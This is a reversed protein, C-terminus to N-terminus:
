SIWPSAPMMGLLAPPLPLAFTSETTATGREKRTALEPYLHTQRTRVLKSDIRGRLVESTCLRSTITSSPAPARLVTPHVWGGPPQHIYASTAKVRGKGGCQSSYTHLTVQGQCKHVYTSIVLFHTRRTDQTEVERSLISWLIDLTAPSLIRSAYSDEGVLLRHFLNVPFACICM